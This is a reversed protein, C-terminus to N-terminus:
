TPHRTRLLEGVAGGFLIATFTAIWLVVFGLLLGVGIFILGKGWRRAFLCRVGPYALVVFPGILFLWELIGATAGARRRVAEPLLMVIVILCCEVLVTAFFIRQLDWLSSSPAPVDGDITM